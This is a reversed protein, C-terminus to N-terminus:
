TDVSKPALEGDARARSIYRELLEGLATSGTLSGTGPPRRGAIADLLAAEARAGYEDPVSPPMRREVPRTVGDLDRYRCRAVWVGPEVQLRTIKGHSGIRLPPRGAM